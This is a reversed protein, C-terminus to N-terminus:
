AMPSATFSKFHHFCERIKKRDDSHSKKPVCISSVPASLSSYVCFFDLKVDLQLPIPKQLNTQPLLNVFQCM